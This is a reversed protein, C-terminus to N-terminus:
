AKGRVSHGDVDDAGDQDHHWSRGRGVVGDADADRLNPWRGHGAVDDADSAPDDLVIPSSRGHGAVDDANAPAFPARKGRGEGADVPADTPQPQDTM